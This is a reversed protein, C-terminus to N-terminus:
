EISKILNAVKDQFRKPGFHLIVEGRLTEGEKIKSDSKKKVVELIASKIKEKNDPDVLIGLKGNLLADRSGDKNGAIVPTGCAMAELFVIGFGEKKSLMAFVDALNYYDALEDDPVYGTLVVDKEVGVKKILKEIREIDDGGGVLFYKINCDEEKIEPLIEIIKDYGKRQETSDLRAVTLIIKSNNSLGYKRILDQPRRAIFFKDEDFTPSLFYLKNEINPLTAKLFGATFDSITVVVDAGNLGRIAVRNKLDWVEIGYTFVIYKLSFLNNLLICLPAFNIHTCFIVDPKKFVAAFISKLVFIPKGLFHSPREVLFVKANNNKLAMLLDKNYRQIGGTKSLDSSLFLIKM